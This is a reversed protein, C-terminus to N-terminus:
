LSLSLSLLFLVLLRLLDVLFVLVGELDLLPELRNEFDGNEQNEDRRDGAVRWRWRSVFGIGGDDGKGDDDEDDDGLEDDERTWCNVL